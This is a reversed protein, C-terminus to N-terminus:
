GKSIRVTVPSLNGGVKVLLQPELVLHVDLGLPFMEEFSAEGDGVGEHRSLNREMGLQSTLKM